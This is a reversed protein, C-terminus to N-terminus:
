DSFAAGGLAGVEDELSPLLVPAAVGPDDAVSRDLPASAAAIILKCFSLALEL